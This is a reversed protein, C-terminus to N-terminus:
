PLLARFAEYEEEGVILGIELQYEREEGPDLFVLTGNARDVNRGEVGCNAPEIGVVYEGEGMMKWQILRPLQEKRYKVYIGFPEGHWLLFNVVAVRVFGEDDPQVDHYFVQEAFGPIPDTLIYWESAGKRAEADRPTVRVSPSLIRAGADVVPFGINIHYLIQHPVRRHSENCVRDEIFFRREGLRAWVKRQLCLNEGFVVSERVEGTAWMLYEDGEWRGAAQVCSAPLNSVRGHLGLEGGYDVTPAGVYSLGCTTVLGGAFSRLWGLGQPEYYAPAALGVSSHWALSIGQYRAAFVDMARDPVVTFEFGNGLNFDVVRVGKARGDVLEAQRVGGLQSVSGVRRMLEARTYENGFLKAM